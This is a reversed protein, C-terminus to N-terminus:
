DYKWVAYNLLTFVATFIFFFIVTVLGLDLGTFTVGGSEFSIATGVQYAITALISAGVLGLTRRETLFREEPDPEAMM